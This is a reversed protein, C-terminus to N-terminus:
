RTPRRNGAADPSLVQITMVNEKRSMNRVSSSPGPTGNAGTDGTPGSQRRSRPIRQFSCDRPGGQPPLRAASGGRGTGLQIQIVGPSCSLGVLRECCDAQHLVVVTPETTQPIDDVPRHGIHGPRRGFGGPAGQTIVCSARARATGSAPSGSFHGIGAPEPGYSRPRSGPAHHDDFTISTDHGRRIASGPVAALGM